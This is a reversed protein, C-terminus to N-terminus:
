AQIDQFLFKFCVAVPRSLMGNYNRRREAGTRAAGSAIKM